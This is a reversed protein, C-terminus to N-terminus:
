LGMPNSSNLTARTFLHNQAAMEDSRCRSRYASALEEHRERAQWCAANNAAEQEQLIRRLYYAQDKANM